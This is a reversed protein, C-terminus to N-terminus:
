HMRYALVAVLLALLAIAALKGAGTKPQQQPLPTPKRLRRYSLGSGPLSLTTMRGRKSWNFTLGKTGASASAGSKSVNIWACPAIRIRRQFRWGM